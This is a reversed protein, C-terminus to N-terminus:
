FMEGAAVYGGVPTADPSWAVDGRLVFATGSSLRLGAGVGYKLGPGSGDLDPHPAWDAWLRGGDVFCATGLTMLKKFVHFDFLRARAELNGFLKIKGYYRQAPVGRVGNSEASPTRTKSDRCNSSRLTASSLTASM